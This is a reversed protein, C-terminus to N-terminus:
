RESALARPQKGRRRYATKLVIEPSGTRPQKPNLAGFDNIRSIFRSYFHHPQQKLVAAM